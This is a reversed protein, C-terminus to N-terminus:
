KLFELLAQNFLNPQDIIVAHGANPIMVQRAGPIQEVLVRQNAPAVTSDNEATVILTQAKIQALRTLSNFTGLARMAARYARPDAQLIQTIMM